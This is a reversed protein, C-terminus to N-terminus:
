YEIQQSYRLLHTQKLSEIRARDFHAKFFSNFQLTLSESSPTKKGFVVHLSNVSFVQNMVSLKSDAPLEGQYKLKRFLTQINSDVGAFYDARGKEVLQIMAEDTTSLILKERMEQQIFFHDMEYGYSSGIRAAGVLDGLQEFTVLNLEPELYFVKTNDFAVPMSYNGWLQREPTLYAGLLVDIEGSEVQKLCRAWSGVKVYEARLEAHELFEEFLEVMTGNLGYEAEWSYPIWSPSACVQLRAKPVNAPLVGNALASNTVVVLLVLAIKSLHALAGSLKSYM